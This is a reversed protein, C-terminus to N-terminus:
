GRYALPTHDHDSRNLRADNEHDDIWGQGGAAFCAGLALTLGVRDSLRRLLVTGAHGIV